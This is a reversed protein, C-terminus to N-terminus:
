ETSTAPTAGHDQVQGSGEVVIGAPHAGV